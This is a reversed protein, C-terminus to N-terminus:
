RMLKPLWLAIEPFVMILGMTLLILGCFPLAERYIEGITTCSTIGKMAFLTMGFPPTILGLELNVMYITAFWVPDFGLAHIVPMFIPLTVMMISISDMVMGMFLVVGQMAIFIWIPSLPLGVALQALGVSAGSFALNQSFAQAGVLIMLIMVTMHLTGRGSKKLLQWNLRRYFFALMLCGMAGTAAAESPTAIGLFIVGTVLFVIFSIPLVYRVTDAVKNLLPPRAVTYPPAIDPQLTCRIIIYATFVAALLFGPLTIAILIKGVSIQGVAGLLVALGSPPIMIALSGSGMIPGLTMAKKYGRKEMEPLITSAMMAASAMSSGTLMAFLTGTGVALLSLRGPLRGLWNDLADMVHPAIGAHLMVEGMLTFLALPLLTFSCVSSAMSLILQELGKGGGWFLLAGMINIALFCFAVPMGTAMLVVFSGIILLLAFQWEM